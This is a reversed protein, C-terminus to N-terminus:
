RPTKLQYQEKAIKRIQQAINEWAEDPDDHKSIPVGKNPLANLKAFPAVSWLCPRLIIPVVRAQGQEHRAIAMKLETDWIYDTALADSSVLLLILDARLLQGKITKDWEEGARLDRDSWTEILGERALPKLHTLLTNLYGKDEKSYSIFVNLAQPKFFNTVFVADILHLVSIDEYSNSCEVTPKGREKRRLLDAYDYFHPAKDKQMLAKCTPCICPVLKEPQLGEKGYSRNINDLEYAINSLLSKAQSGQARITICNDTYPEIIEAKSNSATDYLICGRGWAEDLNTVFRHLRVILRHL